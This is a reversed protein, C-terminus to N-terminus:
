PRQPGARQGTALLSEPPANGMVGEDIDVRDAVAGRMSQNAIVDVDDDVLVDDPDKVAWRQDRRMRPCELRKGAHRVGGM